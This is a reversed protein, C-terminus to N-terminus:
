FHLRLVNNLVHMLTQGMKFFFCSDCIGLFGSEVSCATRCPAKHLTQLTDPLLLGSSSLVRLCPKMSNCDNCAYFIFM